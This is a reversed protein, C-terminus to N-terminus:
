DNENAEKIENPFYDKPPHGPRYIENVAGTLRIETYLVATGTLERSREDPQQGGVWIRYCGPATYRVGHEDVLSFAEPSLTFTVAATEGTRLFVSQIQRLSWHPARGAPDCATVYLQVCERGDRDGVNTVTTEVRVYGDTAATDPATPGTYVFRTYSLGFGFPYAAQQPMYRYTRRDMAYDQLDPLEQTTRYFTVPLRGSPSFAGFLLRAVARGGQEGPYWAQVIADVGDEAGDPALASGSLLVLVLPKGAAQLASLLRRQPAPLFLDPKDGSGYANSADGQEGELTADLGLCVVCLDSHLAAAVAESIRDGPEACGEERDAELECGKAYRVRERGVIEHIGDLVTWAEAPTGHYNGLLAARSDANPGVVAIRPPADPDLPLIGDNKLLVMSREAATLALCRHARCGIREYPVPPYPSTEAPDFMGLRFRAALVRRLSRDIDGEDILGARLAALLHKYVGGCNLDCGRRLAYAATEPLTHTIGHNEQIDMLAGCDSVVHGAFGWDDRLIETLRPSACAPEGNVRNYAGMVAEVEGARVCMEFAPLYTDFLDHDSVQADFGHRLAEPGSHVAFHKACAATKIRGDPRRQQLARIYAVGLRGTLYPDEGYTEHGRGWRPDRFININPCWFTLGKYIGCDGLQQFADYKARGEDAVAAGIEGILAPDFSAALGIAQPFVTAVGARAVGHLAENWWNYCRIGLREVAQADHTLQFVKEEATLRAILDDVRRDIPLAPDRFPMDGAKDPQRTLKEENM